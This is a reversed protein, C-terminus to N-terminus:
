HWGDEFHMRISGVEDHAFWRAGCAECRVLAGIPPEPMKWDGFFDREFLAGAPIPRAVRCIEHGNERTVIEGERAFLGGRDRKETMVKTYLLCM